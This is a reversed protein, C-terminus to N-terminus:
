ECGFRERLAAAAAADGSENLLIALSEVTRLTDPHDAGLARERGALAREIMAKAEDLKGQLYLVGALNM